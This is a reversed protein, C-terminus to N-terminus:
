PDRRTLVAHEDLFEGFLLVFAASVELAAALNLMPISGSSALTGITGLGLLNHLFPLGLLLAVLGIVVYAGAGIGGAFDVAPVPTLRRYSRYRAALWVLLFATAVIVGGQFGGGPTLYGHAVVYLGLLLTAVATAMGAARLADSEVEDGAQRAAQEPRVERLLLAVGLVSAFLILEEGLTDLGRYDFVVAAVVNTAHREDVAVSNLITGYPGPYAGFSPLGSVAWLLLAALGAASCFFLVIRMPRTM